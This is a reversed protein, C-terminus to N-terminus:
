SYYIKHNYDSKNKTFNEGQTAKLIQRVSVNVWIERTKQNTRIRVLKQHYRNYAVYVLDDSFYASIEYVKRNPHASMYWILTKAQETSGFIKSEAHTANILLEEDSNQPTQFEITAANILTKASNFLETETIQQLVPEGEPLTPTAPPSVLTKEQTKKTADESPTDTICGICTIMLLLVVYILIKKGM